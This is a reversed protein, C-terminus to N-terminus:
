VRRANLAAIAKEVLHWAVWLGNPRPSLYACTGNQILEMRNGALEQALEVNDAHCAERLRENEEGMERVCALCWSDESHPCNMLWPITM